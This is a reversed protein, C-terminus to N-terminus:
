DNHLVLMPLKLSNSLKTVASGSFLRDFFGEDKVLIVAVDINKLQIFSNVAYHLPVDNIIFYDYKLDELNSRDFLKFEPHEKGDPNVRLVKFDLNYAQLFQKLRNISSGHVTDKTNLPLLATKPAKYKYNEPIVLTNCHVNRVVNLTNSGFIVEKAGTKGNTGMIVLEISKSTVVQNVADTFDDFDVITEFTYNSNKFSNKLSNVLRVLKEKPAKVISDYINSESSMMLDDSTFTGMKHVHMVHFQCPEGKFFELAYNIANRSNDSFDTLLLIQKM